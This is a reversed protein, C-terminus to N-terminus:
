HQIYQCCAGMLFAKKKKGEKRWLALPLSMGGGFFLEEAVLSEINDQKIM